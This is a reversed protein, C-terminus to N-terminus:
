LCRLCVCRGTSCSGGRCGSSICEDICATSNCTPAPAKVAVFVHPTFDGFWGIGNQLMRWQFGYSGGWSPATVNFNFTVQGGPPVAAPLAVRNLSWNFNDQPSQSGLFHTGPNWTTDGNNRMTVSVTYTGGTTMSSPVSQSVYQASEVGATVAVQVAPSTAGFWEVGDQVMRWQFTYSGPTAPATVTFSFVGEEGPFVGTALPDVRHFGWTLNDQPSQSGLRHGDGAKWITSGTNRMTVSVTYTRGAVMATPVSQRVVESLNFDPLLGHRAYIRDLNPGNYGRSHWANRFDWINPSRVLNPYYDLETDLLSLIVADNGSVLAHYESYADLDGLTDVLDWLTAATFREISDRPTLGQCSTAATQELSPFGGHVTGPPLTRLVANQFYDAFGEMFALEPNGVTCLGHFSPQLALSGLKDHVFHGYEHLIVGDDFARDLYIQLTDGAPEYFTNPYATVQGQAQPLDTYVQKVYEGAYWAASAINFYRATEIDTFSHTFDLVQSSSYVTQQPAERYFSEGVHPTDQPWVTIHGNSAYVRLAYVVGPAAWPMEVDIRGNADTWVKLDQSWGWIGLFGPKYRWIEVKSDFIPRQTDDGFDKYSFTGTIREAHAPVSALLLAALLLPLAALLRRTKTDMFNM